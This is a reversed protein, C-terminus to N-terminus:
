NKGIKQVPGKPEPEAGKPECEGTKKNRQTGKPCRPKAGKPECEGTTKNRQTGKPCRPM